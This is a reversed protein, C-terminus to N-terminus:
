FLNDDSLSYHGEDTIIIHDILMLGIQKASEAIHKTLDLDELSPALSGGPHNHVMIMGSAKLIIARELLERPYCTVGAVTGQSAKEWALMRNRSDVFAIWLEEKENGALRTRAMKAVLASSALVERQRAQSEERRSMLERLLIWHTELAPGFGNVQRLESLRAELVGKVSSFRALLEKALPKTDKRTVVQALLMEIIEYDALKTPDDKLKKRM